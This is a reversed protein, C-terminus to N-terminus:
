ATEETKILYHIVMKVGYGEGVKLKKKEIVEAQLLKGIGGVAKEGLQLQIEKVTVKAKSKIFDLLKQEKESFTSNNM